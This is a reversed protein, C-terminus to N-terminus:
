VNGNKSLLRQGYHIIEVLNRLHRQEKALRSSETRSKQLTWRQRGTKLSQHYLWGNTASPSATTQMRKSYVRFCHLGDNLKLSRRKRIYVNASVEFLLCLRNRVETRSASPLSPGFDDDSSSEDGSGDNPSGPPQEELPAPPPAPGATRKKKTTTDESNEPSKTTASAKAAEEAARKRKALIHPPIQPGVINDDMNTTGTTNYQLQSSAWVWYLNTTKGFCTTHPAPVLTSRREM